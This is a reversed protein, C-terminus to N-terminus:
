SQSASESEVAARAVAELLKPDNLKVGLCVEIIKYVSEVDFVEEADETTFGDPLQRKVCVVATELLAIVAKEESEADFFEQLKANGERLTKIVSPKLTLELDEVKIVETSYVTNAITRM